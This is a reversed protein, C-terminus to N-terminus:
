KILSRFHKILNSSDQLVIIEIYIIEKSNKYIIIPTSFTQLANFRGRFEQFIGFGAGKSIPDDATSNNENWFIVEDAM